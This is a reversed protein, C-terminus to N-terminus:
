GTLFPAENNIRGFICDHIGKQGVECVIAAASVGARRYLNIGTDSNLLIVALGELKQAPQESGAFNFQPDSIHINKKEAGAVRAPRNESFGRKIMNRWCPPRRHAGSAM